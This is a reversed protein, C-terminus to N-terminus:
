NGSTAMKTAFRLRPLIPFPSPHQRLGAPRATNFGQWGQVPVTDYTTMSKLDVFHGCSTRFQGNRNGVCHPLWNCRQCTCFWVSNTGYPSGDKARCWACGCWGTGDIGLEGLRVAPPLTAGVGADPSPLNLGDPLRESDLLKLKNDHKEALILSAEGHLSCFLPIAWREHPPMRVPAVPQRYYVPTVSDPAVLDARRQQYATRFGM